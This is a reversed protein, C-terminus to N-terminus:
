GNVAMTTFYVNAERTFQVLEGRGIPRPSNKVGSRNL